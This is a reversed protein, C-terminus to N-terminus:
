YFVFHIIGSDQWFPKGKEFEFNEIIKEALQNTKLSGSTETPQQYFVRGTRDDIQVKFSLCVPEGSPGTKTQKLDLLPDYKLLQRKALEGTIFFSVPSTKVPKSIVSPYSFHNELPIFDSDVSELQESPIHYSFNELFAFLPPEFPDQHSSPVEELLLLPKSPFNEDAKVQIPSYLFTSNRKFVHIHFILFGILHIGLALCFAQCLLPTFFSKRKRIKVTIEKNRHNKELSLM